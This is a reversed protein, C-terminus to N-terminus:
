FAKEYSPMSFGTNHCSARWVEMSCWHAFAQGGIHAGQRCIKHIKQPISSQATTMRVSTAVFVMTTMHKSAVRHINQSPGQLKPGHGSPLFSVQYPVGNELNECWHLPLVISGQCIKLACSEYVCCIKRPISDRVWTRRESLRSEEVLGRRGGDHIHVPDFLSSLGSSFCDPAGDSCYYSNSFQVRADEGEQLRDHDTVADEMLEIHGNHVDM